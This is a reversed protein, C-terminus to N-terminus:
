TEGMNDSIALQGNKEHSFSIGNYIYVAATKALEETLPCKSQKWRNVTTVISYYVPSHMYIEKISQKSAKSICGSSSNTTNFQIHWTIYLESAEDSEWFRTKYIIWFVFRAMAKIYCM